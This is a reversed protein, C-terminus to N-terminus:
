FLGIVYISNDAFLRLPCPSCNLMPVDWTQSLALLHPSPPQSSPIASLPPYSTILTWLLPLLSRASPFHLFRRCYHTNSTPRSPHPSNLLSIRPPLSLPPTHHIHPAPCLDGLHSHLATTGVGPLAEAAQFKKNICIGPIRGWYTEIPKVWAQFCENKLAGAHRGREQILTKSTNTSGDHPITAQPLTCSSEAHHASPVELNAKYLSLWSLLSM